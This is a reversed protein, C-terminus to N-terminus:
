DIILSIVTLQFIPLLHFQNHMLIIWHVYMTFANLKTFWNTARFVGLFLNKFNEGVSNTEFVDVDPDIGLLELFIVEFQHLLLRASVAM